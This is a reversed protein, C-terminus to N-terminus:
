LRKPRYKFNRRRAIPRDSGISAKKSPSQASTKMQESLQFPVAPDVLLYYSHTVLPRRAPRYRAYKSVSCSIASRWNKPTRSCRASALSEEYVQEIKM